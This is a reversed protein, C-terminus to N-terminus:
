VVFAYEPVVMETALIMMVDRHIQEPTRTADVFKVPHYSAFKLFGNRVREYYGIDRVDFHNKTRENDHMVRKRAVEAPLDFVIYLDPQRRGIDEAFILKRMLVFVGFLEERDEGYLQFAFTSSDGRDSFVHKGTQLTPMVLNHMLEERAAWFLLFNNLPTSRSALLNDRVLKRIEEAFMTGGPERTFVVHSGLEKKLLEIQTGKGSGDMGDFVVYKSEM